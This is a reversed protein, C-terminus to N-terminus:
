FSLRKIETQEHDSLLHAYIMTTTVSSHGLWKSVTALPIRAMLAQSAFTHRLTHWGIGPLKAKHRIRSFVRRANTADFCPGTKRAQPKLIAKLRAHLPITRNRRNKTTFGAKNHVRIQHRTWDIDEWSLHFLEKQRMGTYIGTAILPYLTTAGDCYLAPDRAAELIRAIEDKSLFRVEQQPVRYKPLGSLPNDFLYRNKVCWTLWTKINQIITNATHLSIKDTDIRHTLYAKLQDQTIHHLSTAGTWDLFAKIKQYQNANTKVTRAYQHDNQYKDLLVACPIRKDPIINKGAILEQDKQAKLYIATSRDRTKLTQCYSKGHYRFSLWYIGNRRYLSSM